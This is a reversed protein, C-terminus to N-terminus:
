KNKNLEVLANVVDNSAKRLAELAEERSIGVQDMILKIDEESPEAKDQPCLDPVDEHGAEGDIVNEDKKAQMHEELWKKMQDLSMSRKVEGFVLYSDTSPLRYIVPDALTYLDTDAGLTVQSVEVPEPKLKAFCGLVKQEKPSLLRTAMPACFKELLNPSLCNSTENKISM